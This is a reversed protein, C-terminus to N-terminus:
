TAVPRRPVFGGIKRAADEAVVAYVDATFSESAHGLNDSIVKMAVGAAAAMTAARHRLDHFRM